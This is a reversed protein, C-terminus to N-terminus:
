NSHGMPIHIKFTTGKSNSQIIYEGSLEKLRRDISLLGNGSSPVDTNFGIGNDSIILNIVGEELNMEIKIKEAESHKVANHLIEKYCLFINRRIEGSIIFKKSPKSFSLDYDIDFNELYKRAYEKLYLILNFMNDYRSNMAWIIESMNEILRSSQTIIKQIDIERDQNKSKLIKHSLFKIATLGGGLDDHMESAIRNREEQLAKQKEIVLKQERLALDKERLQRRYYSKIIFWILSALLSFAVLRFWWTQWFPPLINIDISKIKNSWIGDSNSAQLKLTYEGAPLNPYRIRGNNENITIWEEDYNELVYKLKVSEPDSHDIGHFWFSITNDKYQLKLNDLLNLNRQASYDDDNILINSITIATNYGLFSISDPHFVNIGDTGGLIFNGRQDIMGATTNYEQGQIGDAETFQHVEKSSLDYLLLGKNSSLWLQDKHGLVYYICQNLLGDKDKIKNFGGNFGDPFYYLGRSSSVYKEPTGPIEWICKVDSSINYITDFCYGTNCSKYIAMSEANVGLVLSADNLEFLSVIFNDPSKDLVPETKFSSNDIADLRFVANSDSCTIIIQDQTNVIMDFIYSEMKVNMEAYSDTIHNYKLLQYGANAYIDDSSTMDLKQIFDSNIKGSTTNYQMLFNYNDDMRGIGNDRSCYIIDGNDLQIFSRANAPLGNTKNRLLKFKQKEPCISFVGEGDISYWINNYNDVYLNIKNGKVEIPFNKILSGDKLDWKKIEAKGLTFIYKGKHIFINKIEKGTEILQHKSKDNFNLSYIGGTRSSAIFNNQYTKLKADYVDFSVIKNFENKKKWLKFIDVRDRTNSAVYYYDNQEICAMFKNYALLDLEYRQVEKNKYIDYTIISPGAQLLLISDKLHIITYDETIAKQATKFQMHSISDSDRHYKHLAKYSTFWINRDKDEFFNSQINNGIMNHSGPKYTKTQRGDYLNVGDLSSIWLLQTQDLYLYYNTKQSLDTVDQNNIIEPNQPYSYSFGSLMIIIWLISNNM